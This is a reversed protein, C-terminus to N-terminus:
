KPQRGVRKFKLTFLLPYVLQLSLATFSIMNDFLNFLMITNLISLGVTYYPNDPKLVAVYFFAVAMLFCFTITMGVWGLGSYSGSYITGVTLYPAIQNNDLKNLNLVEGLRNSISDFILNYNLYTLVSKMSYNVNYRNVNEQLNALPSSIYIYSWFFEPPISTNVFAPKAKGLELMIKRSSSFDDKSLQNSTRLNGAYGFVLLVALMLMTLRLYIKAKNKQITFLYVFLMNSLNLLIIGRSFILIPFIFMYLSGYLYKKEKTVLYAYFLYTTTFSGLTSVLVAFSPVGFSGYNEQTVMNIISFLPIRGEYAFDIMNGITLAILVKTVSFTKVVGKYQLAHKKNVYLGILISIIFTGCLFAVLDFTLTPYLYSWDLLYLFLPVSFCIVYVFFPNCDIVYNNKTM